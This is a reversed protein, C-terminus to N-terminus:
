RKRGSLRWILEFYKRYADAIEKNILMFCLPYDGKWILSVVRDSYINVVVPNDIVRPLFRIEMNKTTKVLKGESKRKHLIRFKIGKQIRERDWQKYFFSMVKDEKSIAGLLLLEGGSQKLVDRRMTKFGEIGLLVHAEAKPKPSSYTTKLETIVRQVNREQNLLERKKSEIFDSIRKPDAAEFFKVYNKISYSVLGKELLRHLSDYITSKRLDTEKSISGTTTSGLSLLACYVKIEAKSLGIDELCRTDMDERM